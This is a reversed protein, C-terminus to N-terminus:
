ASLRLTALIIARRCLRYLVGTENHLMRAQEDTSLRPSYEKSDTAIQDAREQLTM